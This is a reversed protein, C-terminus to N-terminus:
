PSIFSRESIIGISKFGFKSHRNYKIAKHCVGKTNIMSSDIISHLMNYRIYHIGSMHSFLSSLFLKLTKKWTFRFSLIVLTISSPFSYSLKM